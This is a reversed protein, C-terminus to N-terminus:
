TEYDYINNIWYDYLEKTKYPQGKYHFYAAGIIIDDNEQIFNLFLVPLNLAEHADWGRNVAIEYSSKDNPYHNFVDYAIENLESAKEDRLNNSKNM